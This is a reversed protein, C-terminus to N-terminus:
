LTFDYRAGLRVYRPDQFSRARKYNPNALGNSTEGTEFYQTM